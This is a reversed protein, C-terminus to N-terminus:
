RFQACGQWIRSALIGCAENRQLPLHDMALEGQSIQSYIHHGSHGPLRDESCQGIKPADFGISHLTFGARMRVEAERM